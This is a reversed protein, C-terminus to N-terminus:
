LVLFVRHDILTALDDNIGVPNILVVELDPVSFNGTGLTDIKLTKQNVGDTLNLFLGLEDLNFGSNNLLGRLDIKDGETLNFDNVTDSGKESQIFRFIDAGLGGTLNDDGLGGIILDDGLGGIIVDTGANGILAQPTTGASATITDATASGLSIDKFRVQDGQLDVLQTGSYQLRV